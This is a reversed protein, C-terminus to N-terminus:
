SSPKTKRCLSAYPCLNCSSPTKPDVAASGKIFDSALSELTAKWQTKISSWEKPLGFRNSEAAAVGGGVGSIEAVGKLAVEGARVQGFAAGISDNEEESDDIVSYLPIQPESMREGSWSSPTTLGTKYDIYFKKGDVEDIRDRVINIPLGAITASVAQEVAIVKFPKREKEVHLWDNLLETLRIRELDYLKEPHNFSSNRSWFFAANIAKDILSFEGDEDLALLEEQSSISTYIDELAHHVLQGREIHTFGMSVQDKERANLRYRAFAKFPCEAQAALAGAGGRIASANELPQEKDPISALELEKNSFILDMYDITDSVEIDSASVEDVHVILQSPRVEKDDHFLGYSLTVNNAGVMLRDLLRKSYVLERESSSNPMELERQEIVPIFPNPSAAKPWINDNLDTVWVYDFRLGAAEMLGLVQIPSDKTQPQFAIQSAIYRLLKLAKDRSCEEFFSDMKSVEDLLTHWHQITQYEVSDLKRDGPWGLAELSQSFNQVWASPAMMTPVNTAVGLFKAMLGSLMRPCGRIQLLNDISVNKGNYQEMTAIFNCREGLETLAGKIFPTRLISFLTDREVYGGGMALFELADRMMPMSVLPEGLSFNFPPTYRATELLRVQPEFADTLADHLKVKEKTLEPVVIGIRANPEKELINKAWLAVLPYQDDKSPLSVRSINGQLPINSETEITVGADTIADFLRQHLPPIDDFSFLVMTEPLEVVGDKIAECVIEISDEYTIWHRHAMVSRFELWWNSFFQSEESHATFDKPTKQWLTLNKNADTATNTLWMPEIVDLGESNNAIVEAWVASVHHSSAVIKHSAPLYNKGQLDDWIGTIWQKLAFVQPKKWFSETQQASHAEIVKRSLRLNPTLVLKKDFNKIHSIDILQNAM